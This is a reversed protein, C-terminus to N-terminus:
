RMVNCALIVNGNGTAQHIIELMGEEVSLQLLHTLRGVKCYIITLDDTASLINSICESLVESRSQVCSYDKLSLRKMFELHLFHMNRVEQFPIDNLFTDGLICAAKELRSGLSRLVEMYSIRVRHHLSSQLYSQARFVIRQCCKVILATKLSDLLELAQKQKGTELYHEICIVYTEELLKTTLSAYKLADQLMDEHGQKFIMRIQHM